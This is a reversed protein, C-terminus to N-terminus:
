QRKIVQFLYGHVSSGGAQHVVLRMEYFRDLTPGLGITALVQGVETNNIITSPGTTPAATAVAASGVIYRVGPSMVATGDWIQINVNGQEREQQVSTQGGTTAAKVRYILVTANGVAQYGIEVDDDSYLYQDGAAFVGRYVRRAEGFESIRTDQQSEHTDSVHQAASFM